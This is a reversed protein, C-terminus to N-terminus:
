KTKIVVFLMKIREFPAIATKGMMGAIGGIM